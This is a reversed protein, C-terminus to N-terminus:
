STPTEPAAAVPADLDFDHPRGSFPCRFALHHAFLQLGERNKNGTGYRPDGLVPHGIAAFHRRIQHLRGTTIAVEVETRHTAADYGTVRYRTLAPKHDLPLDICGEAPEPRGTVTIRYGKDIKGEQLLQSLRAAAERNHALLMLGAAERDLRHVPLVPRQGHFHLEAQRVLSCHDGYQTGQALLGAPKEWVSYGGQDFLCRAQPPTIALLEQDYHLELVQGPKLLTTARRLRKNSGKGTALTVAGKAMADKIRAKALGSQQALLACATRDEGPEVTIRLSFRKM